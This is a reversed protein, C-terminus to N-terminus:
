FLFRSLLMKVIVIISYDNLFGEFNTIKGDDQRDGRVPYSKSSSSM